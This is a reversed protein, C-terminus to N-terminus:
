ILALSWITLNNEVSYQKKFNKKVEAAVTGLWDQHMFFTQCMLM